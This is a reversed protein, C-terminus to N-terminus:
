CAVSGVVPGLTGSFRYPDGLQGGAGLLRREPLSEGWRPAAERSNQQDGGPSPLFPLALLIPVLSGPVLSGAVLILAM